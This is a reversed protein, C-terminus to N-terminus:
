RQYEAFLKNNSHIYGSKITKERRTFRPISLVNTFNAMRDVKQDESTETQKPERFILSLTMNM